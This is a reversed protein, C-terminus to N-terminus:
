LTDVGGRRIWEAGYDQDNKDGLNNQVMGSIVSKGSLGSALLAKNM